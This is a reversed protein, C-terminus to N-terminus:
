LVLLNGTWSKSATYVELRAKLDKTDWGLNTARLLAKKQDNQAATFDGLMAHAAARVEFFAPDFDLEDKVQELLDLARRPDRRTADPGTALVGALYFKGDRHGSAAAKELLDQAKGSANAPDTRLLYNALLTQADPQGVDAAMQLWATGKSHDPELGGDAAALLHRGVLYQAAPIGGQAAKVYWEIPLNNTDRPDLGMELALGYSLQSRPDGEEARARADTLLKQQDRTLGDKAGVDRIGFKVKFRIRCPVAVGNEIPPKYVSSLAARRGAEDFAGVPFSNWVRVNRASGDPAVTVDVIVAGSIGQRKAERPYFTDPNAPVRMTCVRKPKAEPDYPKPLLREQLAAKGFRAQVEAVRSRAAVNLHPELQAIIGAAAEGGGGEKAITAWAYGLINDRKVGEGNVYMVALNEQAEPQGLEALERYLGFAREFDKKEAAAAATYLDAHSTLPMLTTVIALVCFGRRRSKM